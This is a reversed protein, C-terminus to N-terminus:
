ALKVREWFTLTNVNPNMPEIASGEFVFRGEPDPELEVAKLDTAGLLRAAASVVADSVEFFMVPEGTNALRVVLGSDQDILVANKM